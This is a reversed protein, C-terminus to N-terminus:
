DPEVDGGVSGDDAGAVAGFEDEGGECAGGAEEGGEEAPGADQEVVAGEERRVGEEEPHDKRQHQDRSIHRIFSPRKIQLALDVRLPRPPETCVPPQDHLILQPATPVKRRVNLSRQALRTIRPTYQRPTLKPIHLILPPDQPLPIRRDKRNHHDLQRHHERPQQTRVMHRIPKPLPHHGLRIPQTQLTHRHNHIIIRLVHNKRRIKRMIKSRRM